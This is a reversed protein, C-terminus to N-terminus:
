QPPVCEYLGVIRNGDFSVVGSISVMLLERERVEFGYTYGPLTARLIRHPDRNPGEPILEWLTEFYDDHNPEFVWTRNQFVFTKGGHFPHFLVKPQKNQNLYFLSTPKAENGAAVLWGKEWPQVQLIDRPLHLEVTPLLIPEPYCSDEVGQVVTSLAPFSTPFSKEKGLTRTIKMVELQNNRYFPQTGTDNDRYKCEKDSHLLAWPEIVPKPYNKREPELSHKLLADAENRIVKSWHKDRLSIIEPKVKEVFSSKRKLRPFSRWIQYWNETRFLERFISELVEGECSDMVDSYKFWPEVQLSLSFAEMCLSKQESESMLSLLEPSLSVGGWEPFIMKMKQEHELKSFSAVMRNLVDKQYSVKSSSLYSWVLQQAYLEPIKELLQVRQWDEKDLMTSVFLKIFQSHSRSFQYVALLDADTRIQIREVLKQECKTFCYPTFSRNPSDQFQELCSKADLCHTLREKCKLWQQQPEVNKTKQAVVSHQCAMFGISFIAIMISCIFNLPAKGV